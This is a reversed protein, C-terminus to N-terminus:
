RQEGFRYRLRAGWMRPEGILNSIFGRLQNDNAHLYVKANTLNTVFLAADVPMRGVDEWNLNLNVIQSSPLIGNGYGPDGPRCPPSNQSCGDAVVRYKSQYVYTGGISIRGISEPLPLTYFASVTLKHPMANPIVDGVTFRSFQNYLSEPPFTPLTFEKLKTHLYAYAAEIRLGEFPRVTLEAELGYLTSAGANVIATTASCNGRFNPLTSVCSLGIQLQQNRFDNYFGSINFTGPVPGRWSTKAGIEYTDVTEPKYVQLPDAGFITISGQRYGRSWKAYLLMDKIPKYDLGLLWTPKESSSKLNQLCADFRQDLTFPFTNPGAYGPATPNACRLRTSAPTAGFRITENHLVVSVKDKTYRIGATLKLENTLDYSAQAYAAMGRFTAKSISFAGSGFSVAPTFPLCNFTSIDACPTFNSTQVGSFGLPTNKEFYLGGQWVLRSNAMHGQFQLEEVFSAEASSLGRTAEAHTFAFGVVQAPSTETGPVAGVVGYNGFLDLNLRGRYEAYSLINKVTLGESAHWTTTNIVQWQKQWAQSDPLSNSVSWFGLQAERAMQACSLDGIPIPAVGPAAALVVGPFCKTIKPILGSGRSHSYSAITYNELDPTLDVVASGRLAIYNVGGMGPGYPGEGLRGANKMYGDRRMRDMGFRLRISQSVPINIVSQLRWMSYDGASGEVYGEFRDSPKRPVLLVAGGTSNRGFLTGQPGKLVQVNQLDFLQGPGAGDGGTSAGSGRPMVVDAFYVGVTATTRNEQAFGRITFAMNDPGNRNQTTLGPTYTALDRASVIQNNDLKKQDFVTISIPVDQLLEEKRRATVVIEQDGKSATDRKEDSPAAGAQQAWAPTGSAGLMTAALLVAKINSGVHDEGTIHCSAATACTM